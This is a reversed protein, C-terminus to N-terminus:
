RPPATALGITVRSNRITSELNGRIDDVVKQVEAVKKEPDFELLIEIFAQPGARRSRIAHLAEYDEFHHALERLILIQDNEELTRDLLDNVSTSFIGLAAMLISGAIVLSAVPDLYMAWEFRALAKSLVLALLIFVNAIMRTLFLRAQSEMLPSGEAKAARRGRIWLVGNIASYVVQAVMSILVGVGAIHSPHLINRISNGVIILLCTAMLTGVLLSVLNEMKGLGYEFQQNSGRNIRRIALWSMTVAVLELFTKLFDALLVSSRAAVVAATTVVLDLLTMLVGTRMAAERSAGDSGAAVHTM